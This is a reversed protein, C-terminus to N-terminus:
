QRGRLKERAALLQVYRDAHNKNYDQRDTRMIKEIKSIEQDLSLTDTGMGDPLVAAAPNMENALEAFFRIAAPDDGILTGDAMRGGVIRAYLSDPNDIDSGGPATAFLSAIGGVMRKYSAGWEEKLESETEWRNREDQEDQVEAAEEQNQFYWNLAADMVPQPAGVKHMEQAFASAIKMDAEGLEKGNLDAANKLYGEPTEPAGIAQHYARIEDESADEAPKFIARNSSIKSEADRYMGFIAAPDRIRELRRLERKYEKDNGASHHKAVQERWDEPWYSSTEDSTSTNESQSEQESGSGTPATGAITTKTEQTSGESAGVAPAAGTGQDETTTTTQQEDSM